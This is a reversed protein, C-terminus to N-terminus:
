KGITPFKKHVAAKVRSQESPTGNQMVRALANRGHAKDNIPYRRNPLAFSSEPLAKRTKTTLVAM